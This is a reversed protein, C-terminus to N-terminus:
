CKRNEGIINKQCHCAWGTTSSHLPFSFHGHEDRDFEDLYYCIYPILICLLPFFAYRTMNNKISYGVNKIHSGILSYRGCLPEISIVEFGVSEFLCELGFNTYRLYNYPRMHLGEGLPVTMFLEGANKLVRFSEALILKPETVHELVKTSLIVDISEDKLPISYIDALIDLNEHGMERLGSDLAIYKSEPFFPKYKADGAGSDLLIKNESQKAAFQLFQRNIIGEPALKDKFSNPVNEYIKNLVIKFM